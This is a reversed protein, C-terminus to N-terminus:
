PTMPQRPTYVPTLRYRVLRVAYLYPRAATLKNVMASGRLPDHSRQAMAKLEALLSRFRVGGELLARPVAGDHGGHYYRAAARCFQGAAYRMGAQQNLRRNLWDREAAPLEGVVWFLGRRLVFDYELTALAPRRAAIQPELAQWSIALRRMADEAEVLPGFLRQRLLARADQAGASSPQVPTPILVSLDPHARM